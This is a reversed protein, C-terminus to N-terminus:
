GGMPEWEPRSSLTAGAKTWDSCMTHGDSCTPKPAATTPATTPASTTSAPPPAGGIGLKSLAQLLAALSFSQVQVGANGTATEAVSTSAPGGQVPFAAPAPLRQVPFTAPKFRGM